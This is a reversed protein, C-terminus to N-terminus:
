IDNVFVYANKKFIQLYELSNKDNKLGETNFTIFNQAFTPESYSQIYQLFEERENANTNINVNIDANIQYKKSFVWAVGWRFSLKQPGELSLSSLHRFFLTKLPKVLM